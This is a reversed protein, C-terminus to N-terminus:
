REAVAASFIDSASREAFEGRESQSLGADIAKRLMALKAAESEQEQRMLRLADRVVESASVYSGSAVADEIFDTFEPTLSVNLTPM